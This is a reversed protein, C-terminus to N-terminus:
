NALPINVMLGLGTERKVAYYASRAREVEDLVRRKEEAIFLELENKSDQLDELTASLLINEEIEQPDQEAAKEAIVRQAATHILLSINRETLNRLDGLVYFSTQIISLLGKVSRRIEGRKLIQILEGKKGEELREPLEIRYSWKMEDIEAIFGIKPLSGM